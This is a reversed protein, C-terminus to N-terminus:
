PRTGYRLDAPSLARKEERQSLEIPRYGQSLKAGFGAGKGPALKRLDFEEEFQIGVRKGECWRVEAGLHGCGPLDLQVKAEVPLTRSSELLAGGTSINRVRVPVNMGNWQVNAVKLLGQRPPRNFQFGDATIAKNQAALAGAEEAPLPRGFIYGQIHSCGLERIMTLEDHTEAGEATTDMDLSEALTVIARIIAANRSGAKAAGRVFSQDIKIKDFPAKKLYGLSSYGTGFDDLAQRVGRSKLKAFMDDTSESEVLFVGETIELELQRPQIQSNALASVIMAPLNPDTFQIPSLNVAVRINEPWKAAEECATRLVWEGVQLILGSEEALPIFTTPSIMGRSPHQWRVLAEFGSLEETAANVVPQYYLLLEGRGIAKRLDNELMQRDQAETHMEPAFFCYTGRGAAKASYLALDANRILADACSANSALAIGVSAGIAINHGEIMYPMSVQQILRSALESLASEDLGRFVAKFEDGGLRGIQGSEGIVTSLRQAVQKLLADGVPHGLTDNVNKFRDLDILFLACGAGPAGNQAQVAEDLTRRMLARNPLGTLSDYKALRNIEEDSRRQQTLDTGIGRFGLFRGYEDFSPTGSLSWWIDATTKARVTIDTFPLRASLHFGLTRESTEAGANDDAGILDTFPRGILDRAPTKLDAALQDSVYSLAGRGTTEWFWGRGAQEFEEIFRNARQANWDIAMRRKMQALGDAFRGLSLRVFCGAFLAAAGVALPDGWRLAVAVIGALSGLAAIAPSSIFALPVALLGGLMAIDGILSGQGAGLLVVAAGWIGSAVLAYAAAARTAATPPWSSLPRKRSYLFLGADLLVLGALLAAAPIALPSAPWLTSLLAAGAVLHVCLFFGPLPDLARVRDVQASEEREDDLRRFDLTFLRGLSMAEDGGASEGSETSRWRRM